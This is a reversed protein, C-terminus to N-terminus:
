FRADTFRAVEVVQRLLARWVRASGLLNARVLPSDLLRDVVEWRELRAVIEAAIRSRDWVILDSAGADLLTWAEDDGVAGPKTAVALVRAEGGQATDHLFRTLESTAAEFFVLGPGTHGAIRRQLELGQSRLTDVHDHVLSAETAGFVEYWAGTTAM